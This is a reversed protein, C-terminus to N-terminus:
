ILEFVCGNDIYVCDVGICDFVIQIIVYKGYVCVMWENVEGFDNLYEKNIQCGNM